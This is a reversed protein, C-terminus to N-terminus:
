VTTEAAEAVVETQTEVPESAVNTTEVSPAPQEAGEVSTTDDVFLVSTPRPKKRLSIGLKKLGQKFKSESLKKDEPLTSNVEALVTAVLAGENFRGQLWSKTVQPKNEQAM